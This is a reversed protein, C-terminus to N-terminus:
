RVKVLEKLSKKRYLIAGQLHLVTQSCKLWKMKTGKLRM